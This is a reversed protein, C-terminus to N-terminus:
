NIKALVKLKICIESMGCWVIVHMYPLCSSDNCKQKQVVGYSLGLEFLLLM